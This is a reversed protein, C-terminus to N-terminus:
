GIVRWPGCSEVGHGNGERHPILHERSTLFCHLQFALSQGKGWLRSSCDGVELVDRPQWLTEPRFLPGPMVVTETTKFWYFFFYPSSHNSYVQLMFIYDICSTDTIGTVKKNKGFRLGLIKPVTWLYLPSQFFFYPLYIYKKQRTKSRGFLPGIKGNLFCM